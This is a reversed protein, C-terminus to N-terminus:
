GGGLAGGPELRDFVDGLLHIALALEFAVVGSGAVAGVSAAAVTGLGAARVAAGILGGLIVAPVLAVTLAVLSGATMLIRQGAAELGVARNRGVTVWAPFLLVAANQVLVLLGLIAGTTPLLALLILFRDGLTLVEAERRGALALFGGALCIWAIGGLLVLPAAIEGRVIDRGRVPYSKLVELMELDQRLDFRVALPGFLLAIGGLALLIAALVDRGGIPGGGGGAVFSGGIILATFLILTRPSADRMAAVANKWFIAASPAGTAALPLRIGHAKPARLPRGLSRGQRLAEIRRAVKVAHEVAAEEFALASRVVWVYHGAFVLLAAPLRTAFAAADTARLPGLVAELPWVLVGLIGSHMTAALAAYGQAPDRTFAAVLRPLHPQLSWWGLVAVASLVLLSVLRRRLGTLGQEALSARLLAMGGYHLQLTAYVIWLALIHFVRLGGLLGRSLFLGTIAASILLALQSRILKFDIVQRRTLPATFLYDTEALTFTFPTEASGFVWNFVVLGALVAVAWVDGAPTGTSGLASVAQPRFVLWYVYLCGVVFGILYKPQRLRAVRRRTGNIFSRRLLYLAAAIM